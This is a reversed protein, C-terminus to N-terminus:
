MAAAERAPCIQDGGTTVVNACDVGLGDLGVIVGAEADKDAAVTAEVALGAALLDTNDVIVLCSGCIGNM